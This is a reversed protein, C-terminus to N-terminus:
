GKGSKIAKINHEAVNKIFGAASEFWEVMFNKNGTASADRVKRLKLSM